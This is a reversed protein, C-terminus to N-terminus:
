SKKAIKELLFNGIAVIKRQTATDTYRILCVGKYTPYTKTGKTRKDLYTKYFQSKPISLLNSWYQEIKKPNQDYRGFITCKFKKENLNYLKRLLIVFTKAIKPNSSGLEVSGERKIGDGLYLASLIIQNTQNDFNIKNVFAKAKQNINAMRNIKNRRHTEAAKKRAKKLEKLWRNRIKIKQSESLKLHGVWDSLTSKPIKFQKIIKSYSYGQKRLRIANSRLSAKKM